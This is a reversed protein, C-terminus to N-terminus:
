LYKKIFIDTLVDIRRSEFRKAYLRLKKVRIKHSIEEGNFRLGRLDQANRIDTRLYWYDLLAKESEALAYKMDGVSIMRYGFFLESHIHRYSFNGFENSFKRTTKPTICTQAYVIEPIFNYVRLASELSVYSPSYLGYAIVEPTLLEKKEPFYYMGRKFSALLGEKKWISLQYPYVSLRRLRIDQTSFYPKNLSKKFDLYKM